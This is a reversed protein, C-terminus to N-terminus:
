ESVQLEPVPIKLLMELLGDYSSFDLASLLERWQTLVQRNHPYTRRLEMAEAIADSWLGADQYSQMLALHEELTSEREVLTEPLVQRLTGHVFIEVVEGNNEQPDSAFSCDITFEWNYDQGIKLINEPLRIGIFEQTRGVELTTEYVENEESDTVFFTAPYLQDLKPVAIYLLPQEKATVGLNNSPNLVVLQTASRACNSGSRTGGGVRDGPFTSRDDNKGQSLAPMIALTSLSYFAIGLYLVANKFIMKTM